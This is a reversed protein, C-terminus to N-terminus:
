DVFRGNEGKRFKAAASERVRCEAWRGAQVDADPLGLGLVRHTDALKMPPNIASPFTRILLRQFTMQPFHQSKSTQILAKGTSGPHNLPADHRDPVCQNAGHLDTRGVSRLGGAQAPRHM